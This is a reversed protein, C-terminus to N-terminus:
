GDGRVLLGRANEISLMSLELLACSCSSMFGFRCCSGMGLGIGLGTGMGGCCCCDGFADGFSDGLMEFDLVAAEFGLGGFGLISTSTGTSKLLVEM